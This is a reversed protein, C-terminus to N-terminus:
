LNLNEPKLRVLACAADNIGCALLWGDGDTIAGCPFVVNAKWHRCTKRDASKLGDIESGYLIPKTSINITEFPPKAEMLAAGVYYRKEPRGPGQETSSHFFRLLKGDYPVINGGRIEGYPWRIGRTKHETVVTDGQVHLVTQGPWSNLICFLNEDSEFFCWNKQMSKWDNGGATPQYIRGVKWGPELRAYKVVSKPYRQGLFDSEVWSMWPEGHLSFLRADECSIGPLAIDQPLTILFDSSLLAGGLRTSSDGKHHHRYTMFFSREDRYISPNYARLPLQSTDLPLCEAQESVRPYRSYIKSKAMFEACLKDNHESSKSQPPKTM